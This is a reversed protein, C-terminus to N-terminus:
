VARVVTIGGSARVSDNRETLAVAAAAAEQAAWLFNATTASTTFRLRFFEASEAPPAAAAAAAAAVVERERAFGSALLVSLAEPVALLDRTIVTTAARLRTFRLSQPDRAVNAFVRRLLRAAAAARPSAGHVVARLAAMAAGVADRFAREAEGGRETQCVRCCLAIADNVLTCRTCSWGTSPASPASAAAAAPRVRVRARREEGCARCCLAVEDNQLTCLPCVWRAGGCSGESASARPSTSGQRPRSKKHPPPEAASSSPLSSAGASDTTGRNGTCAPEDAQTLDTVEVGGEIAACGGRAVADTGSSSSSSSSSTGGPASRGPAPKRPSIGLGARLLRSRARDPKGSAGGGGLQHGGSGMIASYRGRRDAAALAARRKDRKSGGAARASRSRISKGAGANLFGSQADAVGTIGASMDKEAEEWLEDLLKYFKSDHPGYRMHALEHLMTGLVHNWPYFATGAGAPRLRIMIKAGRNVNMGLLGASKPNFEELKKVVWSRRAMIVVAQNAVRHLLATAEADNELGLTKVAMPGIHVVASTARKRGGPARKKKKAM